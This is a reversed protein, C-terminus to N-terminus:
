HTENLLSSSWLPSGRLLRRSSPKMGLLLLLQLSVRLLAPVLELSACFERLGGCGLVLIGSYDVAWLGSM